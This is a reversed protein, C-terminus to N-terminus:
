REYLEDGTLGRGANEDLLRLGCEELAAIALERSVTPYDALFEAFGYRGRNVLYDFMTRLEFRTGRFVPSGLLIEPDRTIAPTGMTKM